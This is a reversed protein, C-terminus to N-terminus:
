QLYEFWQLISQSILINEDEYAKRAFEYLSEPNVVYIKKKSNTFAIRQMFANNKFEIQLEEKREKKEKNEYIKGNTTFLYVKGDFKQYDELYLDAMESNGNKVQIYVKRKRTKPSLMVFEYTPTGTKNTSPVAIYKFKHYFYFYLLDECDKPSLLSYFTQINTNDKLIDINKYHVKNYKEKYKKNYLIQSIIFSGTKQIRQLTQGKIFSTSICGPIDSEDGIKFWEIDTLQNNVGLRLIDNNQNDCYKYLYRSNETKRGLYYIGKSRIWILDDEQIDNALRQINSNVKGEYFKKNLSPYINKEIIKKYKNFDNVIEKEENKLDNKEDPSLEKYISERLTWGMAMVDENICYEAVSIGNTNIQSLDTKTQLRWVESM